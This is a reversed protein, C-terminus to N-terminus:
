KPFHRMIGVDQADCSNPKGDIMTNWGYSSSPVHHTMPKVDEGSLLFQQNPTTTVSHQVHMANSLMAYNQYLRNIAGRIMGKVSGLVISFEELDEQSMDGVKSDLLCMVRGGSEMKAAEQLLKMKENQAQLQKQLEVHQQNLEHLAITVSNDCHMGVGLLTSYHEGATTAAHFRTLVSGASPAGFSYFNGAPSKVLMAVEAGCLAYLESAKKFAGARRKSFCVQRAEDNKIRDIEIKRKTM